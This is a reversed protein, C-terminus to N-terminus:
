EVIMRVVKLLDRALCDVLNALVTWAMESAQFRTVEIEISYEDFQTVRGSSSGADAPYDCPLVFGGADLLAYWFQIRDAIALVDAPEPPRAMEVLCRRAMSFQTNEWVVEFTIHRSVHPYVDAENLEGPFPVTVRPLDRTFRKERVAIRNVRHRSLESWGIMNRLIQFAHPDVNAAQFDFSLSRPFPKPGAALALSSRDVASHRAPFGGVAGAQAFADVLRGIEGASKDTQEATEFAVEFDGSLSGHCPVELYPFGEVM